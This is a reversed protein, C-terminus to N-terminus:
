KEQNLRIIEQKMSEAIDLVEFNPKGTYYGQVYDVGLKIIMRLDDVDEVGEAIVRSNRSKCFNLLNAILAAKDPDKHVGQVMEMDIKIVDPQISLIRMENSYGSGFDDIALMMGMDRAVNIKIQMHSPSESEIEIVEIVVKEFLDGYKERLVKLDADSLLQSPISNIFLKVDKFKDENQRISEFAKFIIVKELKGLKSQNRAVTLVELPSKFDEITPRMLMEYAFIEGTKLDVIPQYAFRILEKDLLVNISDRNDLLYANKHYSSRDFESIGGKDSHKVEYMAYDALRLLESVDRSDEPYWAIGTSCRIKRAVGDPTVFNCKENNMFRKQILEEMEEKSSYGHGYVAFEDGSIRSVVAEDKMFESYMKSASKIFADGVDHGFKDNIYKLNDLDSFLMFGMKDPESTINDYVRRKFAERSYLQTLEDHDVMYALRQKEAVEKTVDIIVGVKGTDIKGEVIHLYMTTGESRDRYEYIDEGLAVPHSTLRHYYMEWHVKSIPKDTELHLLSIVYDTLIAQGIDNRVEFGGIPLDTMKFIHSTKAVSKRIDQNFKEVATMLNDIESMGTRKFHIEQYPGLASLYKSLGSIKRMSIQTGFYNTLFSILTTVGLIMVLMKTVKMSSEKLKSQPAFGFLYWEDDSYISHEGYMNLRRADCYMPELKFLEVEYLDNNEMEKLTLYSDLTLYSRTVPRSSLYWDLRLRDGDKESILYFSSDYPLEGVPLFNRVLYSSSMEVGLVAYPVGRDNKLPVTYTIVDNNDNLLDQPKSWYGYQETAVQKNLVAAMMPKTYFDYKELSFDEFLYDLSWNFSSSIRHERAVGTPGLEIQYQSGQNTDAQIVKRIYIVSRANQEEKRSNSGNFILFAGSINANGLLEMISRGGLSAAESYLEDNLYITETLSDERQALKQLDINLGDAEEATKKGLSKFISDIYESRAQTVSQMRKFAETDLLSFIGSLILGVVLALSQILMLVTTLITIQKRLSMSRKM